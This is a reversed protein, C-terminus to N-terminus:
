SEERYYIKYYKRGDADTGQEILNRDGHIYIHFNKDLKLVSKFVRAQKKVAQPSIEFSDIGDLNNEARYSSDYDRFSKIVRPDHFVEVEFEDLDFSEHKKFYDVSRNLYDIKDTKSVEFEEPLQQLVFKKTIGLFENTQHYENRIPEVGLFDDKWYQAEAGRNTNDVVAVRYGDEKETNFVLCGKDLKNLSIGTESELDLGEESAHIKLFTEKNESKFFGIADVTKGNIRCDRFYAVQLEGPKTKPHTSKDYLIRACNQSQEIFSAEDEFMTKVFQYVPNLDLSPEFHFRYLEELNFSSRILLLFPDQLEEFDITNKSFIFGEDNNKNGIQHVILRDM